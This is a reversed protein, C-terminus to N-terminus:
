RIELTGEQQLKKLFGFVEQQCQTSSVEFAAELKQCIEAVTIPTKIHQWIETAIENLYLYKGTKLNMMYMVDGNPAQVWNQDNFVVKVDLKIENM